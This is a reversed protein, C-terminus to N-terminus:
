RVTVAADAGTIPWVATGIRRAAEIRLADVTHSSRQAAMETWGMISM